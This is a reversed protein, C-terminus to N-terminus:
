EPPVLARDAATREADLWPPLHQWALMQEVSVREHVIAFRDGDVLVEPALPRANYASAMARGYAGTTRIALLDGERMAPLRRTGFSDGSECVPGVVDVERLEEGEAPQGVPVVAHWADYLAPRLLDNMGADVIVFTRTSGEKVRLVRTVLIGANAVLMRGPEFILRCGLDGVTDDVAQAYDVPSPVSGDENGYPVGLGGGLDLTRIPLGDARLMAVLDRVRRFAERFPAVDTLQSGIHVAVGALDLGPLSAARAYVRHAATWEIGFKDEQRGTSIKDHTHADVDPNVRLAVPARLGLGRAVQDLQELEPESEVNIQLVGAQLAAAMEAPSKGVGSFVIRNAPVGAALATLLEGGSVVDAGAGLRALTAIVGLNGNAKIAYCITPSLRGLADALVRYHRTLTATAYIHVPTGAATAITEVAVDEASLRGEVYHFHDM